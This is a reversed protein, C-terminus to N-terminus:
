RGMGLSHPRQPRGIECRSLRGVLQSCPIGTRSTNEVSPRPHCLWSPARIQKAMASSARRSIHSSFKSLSHCICLGMYSISNRSSARSLMHVHRIIHQDYKKRHSSLFTLLPASFASSFIYIGEKQRALPTVNFSDKEKNQTNVPASGDNNKQQNSPAAEKSAEGTLTPLDEIQVSIQQFRSRSATQGQSSSSVTSDNLRM